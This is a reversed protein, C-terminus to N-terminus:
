LTPRIETIIYNKKCYDSVGEWWKKKGNWVFINSYSTGKSQYSTGPDYFRYEYKDIDANYNRGVIVVYHNSAKNANGVDKTGRNVAVLTPKREEFNKILQARAKDIDKSVTLVRKSDYVVTDIRGVADVSQFGANVIMLKSARNCAVMQSNKNGFISDFQTQFKVSKTLDINPKIENM